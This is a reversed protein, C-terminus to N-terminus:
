KGNMVKKERMFKKLPEKISSDFENSIIDHLDDTISLYNESSVKSSFSDYDLILIDKNEVQATYEKYRLSYEGKKILVNLLFSEADEINFRSYPFGSNYYSKFETVDKISYPCENIYRLGIRNFIPLHIVSLFNDLVYKIVDRFKDSDGKNYTVHFSSSIDLSNSLINLIIKNESEFRWLKNAINKNEEGIDKVLSELDTGSGIDAFTIQKRLLLSSDPFKDIIKNQFEGIKDEISFLNPYRVQFIVKKLTPNPFIENIAM